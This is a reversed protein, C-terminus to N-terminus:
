ANSFKNGLIQVLMVVGALMVAAPSSAGARMLASGATDDADCPRVDCGTVPSIVGLEPLGSDKSSLLPVGVPPATAGPLLPYEGCECGNASRGICRVTAPAAAREEADLRGDGGGNVGGPDPGSGARAGIAIDGSLPPALQPLLLGLAAPPSVGPMVDVHIPPALVVLGAAPVWGTNAVSGIGSAGGAPVILGANTASRAARTMIVAAVDASVSAADSVADRLLTVLRPLLTLQRSPWLAM